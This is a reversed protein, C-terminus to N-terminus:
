VGTHKEIALVFDGVNKISSVEESAFRIGLEEEITLILKLHAVSDWEEIDKRSTTESIEMEENDFVEYFINKLKRLINMRNEM